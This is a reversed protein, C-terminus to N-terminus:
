REDEPDSDAGPPPIEGKLLRELETDWDTAKLLLAKVTNLEDDLVLVDDGLQVRARDDIDVARSELQQAVDAITGSAQTLLWRLTALLGDDALRAVAWPDLSRANRLPDPDEQRRLDLRLELAPREGDASASLTEACARALAECPKSVSPLNVGWRERLYTEFSPHTSRYLHRDRIEALAADVQVHAALGEHLTAEFRALSESEDPTLNDEPHTSSM